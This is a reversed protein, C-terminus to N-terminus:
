PELAIMHLTISAPSPNISLAGLLLSLLGGSVRNIQFTCGTNTPAGNLQVNFLDTAGATTQAIAAVIPQVGSPFPTPYTWVYTATTIAIKAKRAKSAHTHDELAYRSSSGRSSSDSVGPPMSSAPQPVGIAAVAGAVAADLEQKTIGPANVEAM